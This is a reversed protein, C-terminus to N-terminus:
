DKSHRCLTLSEEWVYCVCFSLLLVILRAHIMDPHLNVVVHCLHSPVCTHSQYLCLHASAADHCTWPTDTHRQEARLTSSFHCSPQVFVEQTPDSAHLPWHLEQQLVESIFHSLWYLPMSLVFYSFFTHISSVHKCLFVALMLVVFFLVQSAKCWFNRRM